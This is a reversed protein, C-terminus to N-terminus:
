FKLGYKRLLQKVAHSQIVGIIGMLFAAALFRTYVLLATIIGLLVTLAMTYTLNDFALLLSKKIAKAIHGDEKILFVFLYNGMLVLAIFLAFPVIAFIRLVLSQRGVLFLTDYAFVILAALFAAGLLWGKVFFRRVGDFFDRLGVDGEVILKRTFYFVGATAPPALIVTMSLLTWLSSVLILMAWNESITQYSEQMLASFEM